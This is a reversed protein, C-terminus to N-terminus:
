FLFYGSHFGKEVDVSGEVANDPTRRKHNQEDASPQIEGDPHASKLKQMEAGNPFVREGAHQM